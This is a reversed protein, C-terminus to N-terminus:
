KDESTSGVEWFFKGYYSKLKYSLVFTGLILFIAAVAVMVTVMTTDSDGRGAGSNNSGPLSM